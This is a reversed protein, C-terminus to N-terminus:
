MAKAWDENAKQADKAGKKHDDVWQQNVRMAESLDTIARGARQTALALVDAKAGATEKVLDGWGMLRATTQAIAQDLGFFEAIKRGIQWGAMATGVLLGATSMLGLASASKGAAQQIDNLGKVAPGLHIGVATLVGDFQRFSETFTNTTTGMGSISKSTQTTQGEFAVLSQQAKGVESDFKSFDADFQATIAM